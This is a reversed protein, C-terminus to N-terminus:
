DIVKKFVKAFPNYENQIFFEYIGSRLTIPKHDARPLEKKTNWNEENQEMIMINVHQLIAFTKVWFFVRGNAEYREADGTVV